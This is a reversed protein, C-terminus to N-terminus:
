ERPLVVFGLSDVSASGFLGIGGEVHFLPREFNEGALGGFGGGQEQMEPSSRSFDFWNVDLAYIKIMHRGAYYVAFWPLRLKGDRADYPPSSVERQLIEEYDEEELWDADLLQESGPDLSFVGAQYAPVDVPDFRTELLGDLYVIQNEPASFVVDEGESFMKLQRRVQQTKEDLLVSERLRLLAPTRTVARAEREGSRVTLGYETLPTVIPADVPPLYRGLSDPDPRYAFTEGEKTIVVQADTVAFLDRTYKAGPALTQHVFMEPLRHGVLLQADVVLTGVESPGFLDGPKREAACAMMVLCCAAVGLRNMM